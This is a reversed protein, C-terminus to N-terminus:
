MVYVIGVNAPVAWQTFTEIANGHLEVVTPSDFQMNGSIVARKLGCDADSATLKLDVLPNFAYEDGNNILVSGDPPTDDVTVNILPSLAIDGFSYTPEYYAFKRIRLWDFNGNGYRTNLSINYNYQNFIGLPVELTEDLSDLNDGRYGM